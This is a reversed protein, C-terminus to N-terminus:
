IEKELYPYKGEEENFGDYQNNGNDDDNGFHYNNDNINENEEDSGAQEANDFDRQIQEEEESDGNYKRWVNLSENYKDLLKVYKKKQNKNGKKAFKKNLEGMHYTIEIDFGTIKAKDEANPPEKHEKLVSIYKNKENLLKEFEDLHNLDDAALQNSCGM